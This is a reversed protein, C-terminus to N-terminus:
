NGKAYRQDNETQKKLKDADTKSMFRADIEIEKDGIKAVSRKVPHGLEKLKERLLEECIMKKTKSHSETGNKKRMPMKCTPCIGKKMLDMISKPIDIKTVTTKDAM